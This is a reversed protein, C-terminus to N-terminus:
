GKKSFIYYQCYCDNGTYVDENKISIYSKRLTDMTIPFHRNEPLQTLPKYVLTLYILNCIPMFLTYIEEGGIIFVEKKTNEKLTELLSLSKEYNTFYLKNTSQYNDYDRTIVVNIRNPLPGNPLSEFTKRGMVVIHNTTIQKFRRLDDPIHWPLKNDIGIIADENMAVIMNYTAM